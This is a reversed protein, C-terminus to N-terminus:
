RVAVSATVRSGSDPMWFMTGIPGAELRSVTEADAHRRADAAGTAVLM